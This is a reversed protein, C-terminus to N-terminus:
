PDSLILVKDIMGYIVGKKHSNPHNSYFNLFRGSATPKSYVDFIIKNNEDIMIKLNLFNIGNVKNIEVTFRIRDHRSNFVNLANNMEEPPTAILIDDVYRFYIPVHFPLLSFAEEEIDRLVIEAIILSLPSGMPTGYIQKYIKNNFKFFTSNLV